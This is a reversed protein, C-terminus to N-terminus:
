PSEGLFWKRSEKINHPMFIANGVHKIQKIQKKQYKTLDYIKNNEEILMGKSSKPGMYVVMNKATEIIEVPRKRGSIIILDGRVLNKITLQKKVM